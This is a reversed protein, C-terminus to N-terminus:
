FSIVGALVTAGPAPTKTADNLENSPHVLGSPM